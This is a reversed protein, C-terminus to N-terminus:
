HNSGMLYIIDQKLEDHEFKDSVRRSTSPEEKESEVLEKSYSEGDNTGEVYGCLTKWMYIVCTCHIILSFVYEDLSDNLTQMAQINLSYEYDEIRKMHVNLSDIILIYVLDVNLFELFILMKIKWFKFDCSTFRPPNFICFGEQFTTSM